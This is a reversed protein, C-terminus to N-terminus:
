RRNQQVGAIILLGFVVVLLLVIALNIAWGITSLTPSRGEKKAQSAGILGVIIGILQLGTFAMVISVIGLVDTKETAQTVPATPVESSPAPPASTQSIGAPQGTQKTNQGM